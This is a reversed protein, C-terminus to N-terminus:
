PTDQCPQDKEIEQVSEMEPHRKRYAIIAAIQERVVPRHSEISHFENPLYLDHKAADIGLKELVAFSEATDAGHSEGSASEYWCEIIDIEEQSLEITVERM